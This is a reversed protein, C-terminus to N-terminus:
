CVTADLYRLSDAAEHNSHAIKEAERWTSAMTKLSAVASDCAALDNRINIRSVMLMVSTYYNELTDRIGSVQPDTSLCGQLGNIIKMAEETAYFRQEFEKAEAHARARAIHKAATELLRAVQEGPSLSQLNVQQYARAAYPTSHMM